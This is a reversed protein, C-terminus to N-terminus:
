WTASFVVRDCLSWCYFVPASPARRRTWVSNAGQEQESRCTELNKPEQSPALPRRPSSSESECSGIARLAELADVHWRPLSRAASGSEEQAAIGVGRSAVPIAFASKGARIVRAHTRGHTWVLTRARRRGLLKEVAPPPHQGTFAVHRATWEHVVPVAEGLGHWQWARRSATVAVEAGPASLSRRRPARCRRNKEGKEGRRRQVKAARLSYDLQM